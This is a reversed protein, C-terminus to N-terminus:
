VGANKAESAKILYDNLEHWAMQGCKIDQESKYPCYECAVDYWPCGLDDDIMGNVRIAELIREM